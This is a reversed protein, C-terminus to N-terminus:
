YAVLRNKLNKSAGLSSYGEEFFLISVLPM